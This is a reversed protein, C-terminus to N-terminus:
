ETKSLHNNKEDFLRSYTLFTDFLASIKAIEAIIDIYRFVKVWFASISVMGSIDIDTM